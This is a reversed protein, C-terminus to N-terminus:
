GQSSDRTAISITPLNYANSLEELIRPTKFNYEDFPLMKMSDSRVKM